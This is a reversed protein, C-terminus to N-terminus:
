TRRGTRRARPSPSPSPRMTSPAWAAPGGPRGAPDASLAGPVLEGGGPRRFGLLRLLAGRQAAAAPRVARAVHGRATGRAAAVPEGPFYRRRPHVRHRPRRRRSLGRAHFQLPRRPHRRRSLVPCRLQPDFARPRGSRSHRKTAAPPGPREGGAGAAGERVGAPEGRAPEAGGGERPDRDLDGM